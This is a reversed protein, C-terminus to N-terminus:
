AGPPLIPAIKRLNISKTPSAEPATPVHSKAWASVETMYKFEQDTIPEGCCDPWVDWVDVFQGDLTVVWMPSRDEQSATYAISVPVWPGGKVLKRRYYGPQPIDARPTM